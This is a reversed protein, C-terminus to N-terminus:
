CLEGTSQARFILRSFTGSGGSDMACEEEEGDVEVFLVGVFEM